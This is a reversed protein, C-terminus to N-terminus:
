IYWRVLVGTNEFNLFYSCIPIINYIYLISIEVLSLIELIAREVKGLWIM